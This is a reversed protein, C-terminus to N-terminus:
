LNVLLRLTPLMSPYTAKQGWSILSISDCSLSWFLFRSYFVLHLRFPSVHALKKCYNCYLFTGVFVLFGLIGVAGWLMLLAIFSLFYFFLM